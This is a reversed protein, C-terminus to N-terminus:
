KQVQAQDAGQLRWQKCRTCTHRFGQRGIALCLAPWDFTGGPNNTVFGTWPDIFTTSGFYQNILDLKSCPRM